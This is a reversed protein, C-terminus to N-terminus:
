LELMKKLLRTKEQVDTTIGQVSVTAGSIADISKGVTLSRGGNYGQFQKLWGRNTIEQGHTAQYNYDKVLQVSASSDFLILYDFYEPTEISLIETPGSCGGQRCSNVRGVYVYKKLNDATGSLALYKGQFASNATLVSPVSLEKWEPHETGGIKQLEKRLTKDEFDFSKPLLPGATVWFSFLIIFLKFM